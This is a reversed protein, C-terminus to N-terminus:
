AKKVEIGKSNSGKSPDSDKFEDAEDSSFVGYQYYGMVKLVARSLARKEAMEPYYNNNSNQNSASGYTEIVTDGKSATAKIVAMSSEIHELKFSIKIDNKAQIKEIGSRTLIVYHKHKYVDEKDLGNDTYMARLNEAKTM